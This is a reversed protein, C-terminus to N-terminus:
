SLNATLSEYIMLCLPVWFTVKEIGRGWSQLPMGKLSKGSPYLTTLLGLRGGFLVTTSVCCQSLQSM